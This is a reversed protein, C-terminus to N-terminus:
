SKTRIWRNKRQGRIEDKEVARRTTWVNDLWLGVQFDGIVAIKEGEMEKPLNTIAAEQEQVDLIYPEVFGWIAIALLVAGVTVLWKKTRKKM